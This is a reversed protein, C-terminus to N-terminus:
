LGKYINWIWNATILLIAPIAIEKRRLYEEAGKYVKFLTDKKKLLDYIIWAPTIILILVLLIGIPNLSLAESFNGKLVSLASRTSGCSPCPINTFHKFMCVSIGHGGFGTSSTSAFLWIYGALCSLFLFLYLKNRQLFM